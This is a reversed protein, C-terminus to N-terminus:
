KVLISLAKIQEETAGKPIPTVWHTHGIPMITTEADYGFAFCNPLDDLQVYYRIAVEKITAVRGEHLVKTGVKLSM